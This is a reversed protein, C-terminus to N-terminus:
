CDTIDAVDSKCGGMGLVTPIPSELGGDKWYTCTSHNFRLIMVPYGM